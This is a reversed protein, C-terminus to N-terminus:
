LDDHYSLTIDENGGMMDLMLKHYSQKFDSSITVKVQLPQDRAITRRVDSLKCAEAMCFAPSAQSARLHLHTVETSISILLFDKVQEWQRQHVNLAVQRLSPANALATSLVRLELQLLNEEYHTPQRMAENILSSHLSTDLTLSELSLIFPSITHAWGPGVRPTLRLSVLIPQIQLLLALLSLDDESKQVINLHTLPPLPGLSNRNDLRGCMRRLNPSQSAILAPFSSTDFTFPFSNTGDLDSQIQPFPPSHSVTDLTELSPFTRRTALEEPIDGDFGELVVVRLNTAAEMLNLLSRAGLQMVGPLGEWESHGAGFWAWELAKDTEAFEEDSMNSPPNNSDAARDQRAIEWEEWYWSDHSIATVELRRVLTLLAPNAKLSAQLRRVTGSLWMISIYGYLMSYTAKQFARSVLALAALEANRATHSAPHHDLAVHPAKQHVTPVFAIIHTLIEPPVTFHCIPASPADANCSISRTQELPVALPNPDAVESLM